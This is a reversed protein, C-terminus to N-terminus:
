YSRSAKIKELIIKIGVLGLILISMPGFVKLYPPTQWDLQIDGAAYILMNGPTIWIPQSTFSNENLATAKWYPSYSFKIYVPAPDSSSISFKIEDTGIELEKIQPQSLDLSDPPQYIERTVLTKTKNSWWDWLNLNPQSEIKYPLTEVLQSDNIKKLHYYRQHYFGQSDRSINIKAFTTAGEEYESESTFAQYNIGLLDLLYDVGEIKNTLEDIYIEYIPVGYSEKNLLRKAAAYNLGTHSSEFFLGFSGILNSNQTLLHDTTRTFLDIDTKSATDIFRGKMNTPLNQWNTEFKYSLPSLTALVTIILTIVALSNAVDKNIKSIIKDTFKNKTTLIITPTLIVLFSYYRYFHIGRFLYKEIIKTPWLPLVSLLGVLIVFIFIKSPFKKNFLHTVLSTLLLILCVVGIPFIRGTINFATHQFRYDLFPLIWPLGILGALLLSYLWFKIKILKDKHSSIVLFGLEILMFLVALSSTLSHTLLLLGLLFGKIHWKKSALFYILLPLAFTATITGSFLTGKLSVLANVPSLLYFIISLSFAVLRHNLDKLQSKSFVWLSHLLLLISSIIFLALAVPTSKTISILIKLIWHSIPPYLLTPYGGWYTNNWGGQWPWSVLFSEQVHGLYDWFFSFEPYKVFFYIIKGVLVLGIAFFWLKGDFKKRM